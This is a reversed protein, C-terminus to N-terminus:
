SREDTALRRTTPPCGNCEDFPFAAGPMTHANCWWACQTDAAVKDCVSCGSCHESGCTYRNCWWDCDNAGTVGCKKEDLRSCDACGPMDCTYQNCWGECQLDCETSVAKAAYGAPVCIADYSEPCIASVVPTCFGPLGTGWFTGAEQLQSCSFKSIQKGPTNPDADVIDEYYAYYASDPGPATDARNGGGASGMVQQFLGDNDHVGYANPYTSKYTDALGCSTGCVYGIFASQPHGATCFGAQDSGMLAACSAGFMATAADEYNCAQTGKFALLLLLPAHRLM